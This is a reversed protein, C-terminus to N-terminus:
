HKCVGFCCGSCVVRMIPDRTLSLSRGYSANVAATQCRYRLFVAATPRRVWWCRIERYCLSLPTNHLCCRETPPVPAWLRADTRWIGGTDAAETRTVISLSPAFKPQSSM